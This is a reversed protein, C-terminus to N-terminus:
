RPDGDKAKGKSGKKCNGKLNGLTCKEGVKVLCRPGSGKEM